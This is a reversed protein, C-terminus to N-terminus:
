KYQLSPLVDRAGIIHTHLAGVDHPFVVLFGSSATVAIAVCLPFARVWVQRGLVGRLLGAVSVMNSRLTPYPAYPPLCCCCVIVRMNQSPSSNSACPRYTTLDSTTRLPLHAIMPTASSKSSSITEGVAFTYAHDGSGYPSTRDSYILRAFGLNLRPLQRSRHPGDLLFRSTWSCCTVSVDCLIRRMCLNVKSTPHRVLSQEPNYVAEPIDTEASTKVAVHPTPQWLLVEDIIAWSCSKPCIQAFKRSM